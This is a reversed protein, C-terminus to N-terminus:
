VKNCKCEFFGHVEFIHREVKRAVRRRESRHHKRRLCTGTQGVPCAVTKKVLALRCPYFISLNSIEPLYIAGFGLWFRLCCTHWSTSINLTRDLGEVRRCGGAGLAKGKSGSRSSRPAGSSPSRALPPSPLQTDWSGLAVGFSFSWKLWRNTPLRSDHRTRILSEWPNFGICFRSLWRTPLLFTLMMSGWFFDDRGFFCLTAPPPHFFFYGLFWPGGSAPHDSHNM